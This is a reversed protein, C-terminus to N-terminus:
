EIQIEGRPTEFRFRLGSKSGFQVTTPIGIRDLFTQALDPTPHMPTLEILRCGQPANEVPRPTSGWDILFPVVPGLSHSPFVLSWSLTEGNPIQRSLPVRASQINQISLEEVTTQADDCAYCWGRSRPRDLRTLDERLASEVAQDPDPALLELYLHPGLATLANRTGLGEHAGGYVPRVGTLSAWWEIAEDLDPVGILLHDLETIV